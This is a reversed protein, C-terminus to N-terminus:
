VILGRIGSAYCNDSRIDKLALSSAEHQDDEAPHGCRTSDIPGRTRQAVATRSITQNKM